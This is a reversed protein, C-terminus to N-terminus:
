AVTAISVVLKVSSYQGPYGPLVRLHISGRAGLDVDNSTPTCNASERARRRRAAFLEQHGRHERHSFPEASETATTM